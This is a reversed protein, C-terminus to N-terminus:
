DNERKMASLYIIKFDMTSKEKPISTPPEYPAMGAYVQNPLPKLPGMFIRKMYARASLSGPILSFRINM